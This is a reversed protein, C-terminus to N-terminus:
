YCHLYTFTQGLITPQTEANCNLPSHRVYITSPMTVPTPQSYQSLAAAGIVAAAVRFLQNNTQRLQDAYTEVAETSTLLSNYKVVLENYKGVFANHDDILKAVVDSARTYDEKGKNQVAAMLTNSDQRGQKMLAHAIYAGDVVTKLQYGYQVAAGGLKMCVFAEMNLEHVRSDSISSIMAASPSDTYAEADARCKTLTAHATKTALKLESIPPLPSLQEETQPPTSANNAVVARQPQASLLMTTLFQFLCIFFACKM